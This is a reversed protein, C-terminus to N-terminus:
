LNINKRCVSSFDCYECPKSKKNPEIKVNGKLMENGINKLIEKAEKCLMNFEEQELCKKSARNPSVDILKEDVNNVKNDMKELIKVDKLFLGSMRLKKIIEKRIKADDKTYDNLNLLRNSLDFYLTASPLVEINEKISNDSQSKQVLIDKLKNKSDVFATLYTILQLSIGERIKEISLTKGSSKYDVVRAYVKDDVQLTDIRDIKGVIKMNKNDDLKIDIPLLDGNDKFYLEYGYPIFESQNFGRAIIVVVKKLTNTLKQKYITYKVSEKQRKFNEDLEKSIINFLVTQYKENLNNEDKIIEHWFINNEFLYMSFKELVDHMFNGTDMTTIDFVKKKSLNLVYKMCYSFPCSKFLELKYVSSKLTDKYIMDVSTKSLNSDDKIYNLIQKYKEDEEFYKYMGLIENITKIDINNDHELSDIKEECEKIKYVLYEFAKEKSYINDYNMNLTESKTVEGLLKIDYVKQILLIFSSKRTSNSSIDTSPMSIYLEEYTNSLAEYINYLGMNEKSITTEKFKTDYEELVELEYDNFFIDQDQKKPFNGEVVGVFFGYKKSDVKTVDIDVLMVKDKTPPITKLSVNKIALKIIKYFESLLMKDEEYIKCISDFIECIKDWVQEKISVSYIYYPKDEINEFHKDYKQLINNKTLHSYLLFVIDKATMENKVFRSVDSFINIIYERIKNLRELDYITEGYRENNLYFKKNLNYKNISFELVYNEFYSIDIDDINNLRLKLIELIDDLNIGTISMKLLILIYQTIKTDEISIKKDVYLPINYEFFVRSFVSAYNELDTTYICFDSYRKNERIGKCINFAIAEAEKYVNQYINLHIHEPKSIYKKSNKDLLKINNIKSSFVNEALYVIDKNAKSYNTYMVKEKINTNTVKAMKVLTKYTDNVVEFIEDSDFGDINETLDYDTNLTITVDIKMLLLLKIFKYESKTFNNYSDFYVTVNSLKEKLFMEKKVLIDVEDINDIYKSNIKEVYKEYIKILEKLKKELTKNKLELKDIKEVDIDEKRFIDMYINLTEFFGENFKVKKFMKFLEENEKIIQTMIIKKDLKSIYNEDFHINFSKMINSIYENITTINVGIIGNLNLYKIYNEEAIVRTQSPVFLIPRLDKEIDEKICNYIYKSKGTKSKGLIIKM